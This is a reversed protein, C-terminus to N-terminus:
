INYKNKILKKTKNISYAISQLKIGTLESIEHLKYGDKYYYNFITKDYWHKTNIFEEIEDIRNDQTAHEEIIQNFYITGDTTLDYKRNFIGINSMQGYLIRKCIVFCKYKLFNKEVATFIDEDKMKLLQIILESKLEEWDTTLHKCYKIIEDNKYIDSIIEDKNNM